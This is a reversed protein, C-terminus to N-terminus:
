WGRRRPDRRDRQPRRQSGEPRPAREAPDRARDRLQEKATIESDLYERMDGETENALMERADVLDAEAQRYQEYAEVIPKLEAHRRGAERAADQDGGAYIESLRAELKELETQLDALRDFM